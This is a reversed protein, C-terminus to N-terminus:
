ELMMPHCCMMPYYYSAYLVLNLYLTCRTTPSHVGSYLHPSIIFINTFIVYTNTYIATVRHNGRGREPAVPLSPSFAGRRRIRGQGGGLIPPPNGRQEMAEM